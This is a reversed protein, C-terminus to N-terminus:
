QCHSVVSPEDTPRVPLPPLRLFGAATELIGSMDQLHDLARHLQCDNVAHGTDDILRKADALIGLIVTKQAYNM